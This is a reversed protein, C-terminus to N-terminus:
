GFFETLEALVAEPREEALFHGSDPIVRIRVDTAARTIAAEVAPAAWPALLGLVPTTVKDYTRLDEIDREFTQYWKNGAQIADAPDYAAAYIARDRDAIAAPDQALREIMHDVLPRARGALLEAPLTALQNFAFWWLANPGLVRLEHFSDSPHPVDLMAIKDVSEPHNAALSFAVMAGIGVPLVIDSCSASAAMSRVTGSSSSAWRRAPVSGSKPANRAM